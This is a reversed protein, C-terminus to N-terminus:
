RRAKGTVREPEICFVATALLSSEIAAPAKDMHAPLYKKALALLAKRKEEENEVPRAAGHVVASEYQTTFTDEYVPQTGGVVCFSCRSEHALDDLKEGHKASHFYLAGDLMVYSLPVARPHGAPTVTALVGHEGRQLLALTDAESMLRDRRRVPRYDEM